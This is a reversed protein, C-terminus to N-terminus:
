ILTADTSQFCKTAFHNKKKRKACIKGFAPCERPKQKRGCKKYSYQTKPKNQNEKVFNVTATDYKMNRIQERSAEAARVIEIAKEINLNNERLLREQLVIDKIGLVILDRILGNEQEAFECTSALTKLQTVYTEITQGELQVCSFFNYREYVFM